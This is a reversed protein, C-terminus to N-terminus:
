EARERCVVAGDRDILQRVKNSAEQSLSKDDEYIMRVLKGRVGGGRNIEEVALAIGDRADTGFTADAGSLSLYAGLVIDDGKPKCAGLLAVSLGLFLFILRSGGAHPM